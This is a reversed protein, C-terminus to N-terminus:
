TKTLKFSELVRKATPADKDGRDFPGGCNNIYLKDDIVYVRIWKRHKANEIVLHKGPHKGVTIDKEELVKADAKYGTTMAELMTKPDADKNPVPAVAMGCGATRSDADTAGFESMVMTGKETPATPFEMSYNGTKSTYTTWGAAPAEAPPDAPKAVAPDAPKVAPTEAPPPSAAPAPAKDKDKCSVMGVLVLLMAIKNM